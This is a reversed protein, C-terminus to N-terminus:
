FKFLMEKFDSIKGNSIKVGERELIKIKTKIGEGASYQGITGDSRVVRHCPVQPANPNKGVV